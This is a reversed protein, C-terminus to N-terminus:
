TYSLSFKPYIDILNSNMLIIKNIKTQEYKKAFLYIHLTM